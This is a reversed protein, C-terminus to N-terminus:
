RAELVLLWDNTGTGNDGPTRFTRTGRNPLPGHAAARSRGGVPNQWRATVPGPFRGLDVTLARTRTGTSPIYTVALRRDATRATLATATDPERGRPLSAPTPDPVLRHWPLRAFLRGLRAMDRSGTGGLARRWTTRAPFLGPGDFHWLPNNGFFQGCAGGLVAWYAQRRIDEPKAGHEGEYVAELLVFPRTPQRRYAARIPRFLAKEYSYVANVTLWRPSGFAAAISDASPASHGTMLHRTDERRIGEAVETVTWLDAAPPSFDGGVVWVINPLDTFRKGVFRGYRRLTARGSAKMERFWGEDGGGAGLYAPCLWVVIGRDNAKQVVRHAFDFYAANPAAFDGARAFPALGTRTRPANTAFKHEILNVLVSNFGRNRRDDLYRDIEGPRPQVILSWPSDGVVLFPKGQRDALFRGNAAVRLPFPTTAAEAPPALGALAAGLLARYM